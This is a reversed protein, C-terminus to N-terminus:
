LLMVNTATNSFLESIAFTSFFDLGVYLKIVILNQV